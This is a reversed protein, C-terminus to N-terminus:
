VQDFRVAFLQKLQVCQQLELAPVVLDLAIGLTDLQLRGIFNRGDRIDCHFRHYRHGYLRNVGGNKVLGREIQPQFFEVVGLQKGEIGFGGPDVGLLRLQNPNRERHLGM